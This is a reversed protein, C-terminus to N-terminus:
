HNQDSYSIEVNENYIGDDEKGHMLHIASGRIIGIVKKIQDGTRSLLTESPREDMPMQGDDAYYENRDPSVPAPSYGEEEDESFIMPPATEEEEDPFITLPAAEEEEDSFRQMPVVNEAEETQEAPFPEVTPEDEAPEDDFFRAPNFVEDEQPAAPFSATEQEDDFYAAPDFPGEAKKVEPLPFDDDARNLERDFLEDEPIYHEGGELFTLAPEFSEQPAPDEQKSAAAVNIEQRGNVSVSFDSQRGYGSTDLSSDTKTVPAATPETVYKSCAEDLSKELSKMLDHFEEASTQAAYNSAYPNDRVMSKPLRYGGKQLIASTEESILSDTQPLAEKTEHAEHTEPAPPTAPLPASATQEQVRSPAPKPQLQRDIYAASRQAMSSLQNKMDHILADNAASPAGYNTEYAQAATKRDAEFRESRPKKRVVVYGKKAGARIEVADIKKEGKVVCVSVKKKKWNKPSCRLVVDVHKNVGKHMIHTRSMDYSRPVRRMMHIHEVGSLQYRRM